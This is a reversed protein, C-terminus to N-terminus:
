QASVLHYEEDSDKLWMENNKLRTITYYKTSKDVRQIELAEKDSIFKWSGSEDIANNDRKIYEGKRTLEWTENAHDSTTVSGTGIEFAHEVKWTNAVRATKTRLSLAPGDEYKKCTVVGFATILAIVIPLRFTLLSTKM